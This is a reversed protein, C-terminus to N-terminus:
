NLTIEIVAVAAAPLTISECAVDHETPKFANVNDPTIEEEPDASICYMKAAKVSGNLEGFDISLTQATTMSTNTVHLYVTNETKTATADIDGSYCVDLYKKGVHTGYLKMVEGVPQLYTIGERMPTPIMLANVQWVNGCFDAMTAIELIDSNRMQVNLIRAYSAGAGWSSLIENRNRGHLAFHGETMAIKKGGCDARMDAIHAELSLRARQMHEWARAYDKRYEVGDFPADPGEPTFHHHFAILDIDDIQSMRGCWSTDEKKLDYDGWGILKISDDVAKMRAAFRRTVEATKAAGYGNADYSTENGIQWYKVGFPLPSGNKIREANNPNNCYDVWEAAEAETGFRDTGNKPHAWNMRGDSEMNVVLLPDAGVRKCFDLFEHTGVQNNFMGNWCYNVMPIRQSLPGIAERWHYYSAFCGGWRLMRPALEQTKKVVDPYWDQETFDWAADVSSDCTGLPEMFQMYLYPSVDHKEKTNIKVSIM